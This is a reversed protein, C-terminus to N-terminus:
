KIDRGKWRYTKINKNIFAHFIFLGFSIQMPIILFINETVSQESVISILIRSIIYTFLYVIFFYAPLEVLVFLFGFTTIIWFLLALILSNGFFANVNKSFGNVADDFGNYMRCQITSDGVLCAIRHKENKFFRSIEIDEVKKNKMKEHPECSKYIASDLFMFQGNAAALSSMGSKRVLILPLM